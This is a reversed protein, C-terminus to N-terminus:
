YDVVLWGYRVGVLEDDVMRKRGDGEMGQVPDDDGVINCLIISMQGNTGHGYSKYKWEMIRMNVDKFNNCERFEDIKQSREETEFINWEDNGNRKMDM